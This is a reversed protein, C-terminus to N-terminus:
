WIFFFHVMSTVDEWIIIHDASTHLSVNSMRNLIVIVTFLTSGNRLRNCDTAFDKDGTILVVVISQNNARADAETIALSKKLEDDM